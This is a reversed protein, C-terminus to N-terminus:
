AELEDRRDLLILAREASRRINELRTELESACLASGGAAQTLIEEIITRLEYSGLEM